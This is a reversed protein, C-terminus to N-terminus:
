YTLFYNSIMQIENNLMKKNFCLAGSFHTFAWLTEVLNLLHYLHLKFLYNKSIRRHAAIKHLNIQSKRNMRKFYIFPRHSLLSSIGYHVRTKLRIWQKFAGIEPCASLPFVFSIKMNVQNGLFHLSTFHM